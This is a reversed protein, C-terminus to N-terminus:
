AVMDPALLAGYEGNESLANNCVCVVVNNLTIKKDEHCEKGEEFATCQEIKVVDAKFGILVGNETGVARYPVIRFRNKWNEDLSMDKPFSCIDSFSNEEMSMIIEEPLINKLAGVEAVIVSEGTFPDKLSNGTDIIAKIQIDAEDKKDFKVHVLAMTNQMCNRKRIMKVFFTIIIYAVCLGTIYSTMSKTRGSLLLCFSAGSFLFTIAYFSVIIKGFFRFKQSKNDKVISWYFSLFLMLLSVTMKCFLTTFFSEAWLSVVAYISGIVAGMVLSYWKTKLHLIGSTIHLIVYNIVFNEFFYMDIYVYKM